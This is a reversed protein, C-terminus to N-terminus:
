MSSYDRTWQTFERLPGQAAVADVPAIVERVFRLGEEAAWKGCRELERTEHSRPGLRNYPLLATIHVVILWKHMLPTWWEFRKDYRPFPLHKEVYSALLDFSDPEEQDQGATPPALYQSFFEALGNAGDPGRPRFMFHLYNLSRLFFLMAQETEPDPALPPGDYKKRLTDIFGAVRERPVNFDLKFRSVYSHKETFPVEDMVATMEQAESDSLKPWTFPAANKGCVRRHVPWLIKQHATSCFFIDIKGQDSCPKCRTTSPAGCLCCREGCLSQNSSTGPAM